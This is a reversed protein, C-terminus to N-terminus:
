IKKKGLLFERFEDLSVKHDQDTDMAKLIKMTFKRELPVGV